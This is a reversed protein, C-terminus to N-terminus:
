NKGNKTQHKNFAERVQQIEKQVSPDRLVEEATLWPESVSGKGHILWEWFGPKQDKKATQSSNKSKKRERSFFAPVKKLMSIVAKQEALDKKLKKVERQLRLVEQSKEVPAMSKRQKRRQLTNLPIDRKGAAKSLGTKNSLRVAGRKSGPPYKKREKKDAM